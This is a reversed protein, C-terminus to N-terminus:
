TYREQRAKTTGAANQVKRRISKLKCTLTHSAALTGPTLGKRLPRGSILLFGAMKPQKKRGWKLANKPQIKEFLLRASPHFLCLSVSGYSHESSAEARRNGDTSRGKERPRTNRVSRDPVPLSPCTESVSVRARVRVRRDTQKSAPNLIVGREWVCM